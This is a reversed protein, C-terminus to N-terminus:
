NRTVGWSHAHDFHTTKRSRHESTGPSKRSKEHLLATVSRFRADEGSQIHRGSIRLVGRTYGLLLYDGRANLASAIFRLSKPLAPLDTCAPFSVAIVVLILSIVVWMRRWLIDWYARLEM